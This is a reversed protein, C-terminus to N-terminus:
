LHAGNWGASPTMMSLLLHLEAHEPVRSQIFLKAAKPNVGVALWDILM